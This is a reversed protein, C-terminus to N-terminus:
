SLVSQTTSYKLISSNGGLGNGNSIADLKTKTGGDSQYISRVLLLGNDWTANSTIASNIWVVRSEDFRFAAAPSANTTNLDQTGMFAANCFTFFGIQTGNTFWKTATVFRMDSNIPRFVLDTFHFETSTFSGKSMNAEFRVSAYFQIGDTHIACGDAHFGNPMEYKAISGAVASWHFYSNYAYILGNFHITVNPALTGNTIHVQCNVFRTYNTEYYGNERIRIAIDSWNRENALEFAKDLTKLMHDDDSGDNDDSGSIIGVFLEQIVDGHGYCDGGYKGVIERLEAIDDANDQILGDQTTNANDIRTINDTVNNASTIGDGFLGQIDTFSADVSDAYASVSSSTNFRTGITTNIDTIDEANATIRGDFTLVEQRYAEVQANYNGTVAWYHTDTIPVGHPVSQRSTYSAGQYQVISLPEYDATIDWDGMFLPVYRAGIYERVTM